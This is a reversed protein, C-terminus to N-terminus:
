LLPGKRVVYSDITTKRRRKATLRVNDGSGDDNRWDGLEGSMENLCVDIHSNLLADGGTSPFSARNCVPCTITKSTTGYQGSSGVKKMRADGRDVDEISSPCPPIWADHEVSLVCADSDQHSNLSALEIFKDCIPCLVAEKAFATDGTDDRDGQKGGDSIAGACFFKDIRTQKDDVPPVSGHHGANPGVLSSIRVGCLRAEVPLEAELMAQTIRLFDSASSVADKFTKSRQKVTFDSLKLKLSVCKGGHIGDVASVDAAVRTCIDALIEKLRSSDKVPRFTTERSIGKRLSPTGDTPSGSVGLASQALFSFMRQGFVHLLIARKEPRLVDAVKLVDVGELM